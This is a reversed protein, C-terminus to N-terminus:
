AAGDARWSISDGMGGGSGGYAEVVLTWAGGAPSEVALTAEPEDMGLRAEGAVAGTPDVLTALVDATPPVDVVYISRAVLIVELRAFGASLNWPVEVRSREDTSPEVWWTGEDHFPAPAPASPAITEAAPTACGALLLTPLLFRPIMACPIRGLPM